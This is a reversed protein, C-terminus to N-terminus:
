YKDKNKEWWKVWNKTYKVKKEGTIYRLLLSIRTQEKRKRTPLSKILHPVARRDHNKRLMAYISNRVNRNEHEIYPCLICEESNQQMTRIAKYAIKTAPQYNTALMQILNELSLPSKKHIEGLFEAAFKRAKASSGKLDAMLTETLGPAPEELLAKYVIIRVSASWDERYRALLEKKNTVDERQLLFELADDRNRKLKSELVGMLIERALPNSSANIYNLFDRTLGFTRAALNNKLCKLADPTNKKFLGKAATLKLDFAKGNLADILYSTLRPSDISAFINLLGKKLKGSRAEKFRDEIYPIIAIATEHSGWGPYAKDLAEQAALLVSWHSDKLANILPVKGDPRAIVAIAHCTERRVSYKQHSLKKILDRAFTQAAPLTRWSKEHRDLVGVASDRSQKSTTFTELLPKLANPRYTEGLVAIAKRRSLEKKGLLRRFLEDDLAIARSHRSWQPAMKKLGLLLAELNRLELRM